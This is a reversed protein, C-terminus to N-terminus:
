GMGGALPAVDRRMLQALQAKDSIELKEYIRRLHHRVTAPSMTLRRAIEKYSEGQAFAEAILREQRSLSDAPRRRNVVLLVWDRVRSLNIVLRDGAFNSSHRQCVTLLPPPLLPSRWHPWEERMLQAFNPGAHHIVGRRDAIAVIFGPDWNSLRLQSIQAIRNYNWCAFLHPMMLQKFAREEESFPVGAGMRYLVVFTVIDLTKDLDITCLVQRIDFAETFARMHPADAFIETDSYVTIGPNRSVLRAFADEHRVREWLDGFNEPLKYPYSSHLAFSDDATASMGWWAADFQIHQSILELAWGQFHEMPMEAAARHLNLVLKSFDEVSRM